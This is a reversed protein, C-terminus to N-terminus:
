GFTTSIAISCGSSCSLVAEKVLLHTIGINGGILRSLWGCVLFFPHFLFAKQPLATYKVKFLLAGRAAQQSWVMYGFSDEPYPPLIWTYRYGAPTAAFNLLYPITTIAVMFITWGWRFVRLGAHTLSFAGEATAQGEDPRSAVMPLPLDPTAM